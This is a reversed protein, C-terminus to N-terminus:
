SDATELRYLPNWVVLRGQEMRATGEITCCTGVGLGAVYCRGLFLLGLEGTGDDILCYLSRSGHTSTEQSSKIVGTVVLLARPKADAIKRAVPQGGWCEEETFEDPSM